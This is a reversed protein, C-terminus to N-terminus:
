RHWRVISETERVGEGREIFVRQPNRTNSNPMDILLYRFEYYGRDNMVLDAHVEGETYAPSGRDRSSGAARTSGKIGSFMGAMSSMWGGEEKLKSHEATPVAQPSPQADESGTLFRFMSRGLDVVQQSKASATSVMDETSMERLTIVADQAKHSIRSFFGEDGYAAASSGSAHGQVYFNLLMHERSTSDVFIQSSVYHNRHRPRAVSPPHNHFVLSEGLHHHVQPSANILKCARNYLVTPSNSSFMESTLAYGLVLTFGAGALIVLMNTTRATTRVVKGAANLESWKKEPKLEGPRPPTIGLSFPGASDERRSSRQTQDLANALLSSATPKNSSAGPNLNAHTAYTRTHTGLIVTCVRSSPNVSCARRAQHIVSWTSIRM